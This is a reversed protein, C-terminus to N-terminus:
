LPGSSAISREEADLGFLRWSGPVGKLERSGRDITAFQSDQIARRVAASLLIEGPEAAAMVRAATHVEIGTLTEGRMEVEGLHLGTRLQIGLQASAQRIAVACSVGQTPRQFTAFFSDGATDVEQGSYNSLQQRVAARYRGLLVRWRVDGLAVIQETSGVIDTFLMTVLSRSPLFRDVVPRISRRIPVYLMGVVIGLFGALLVSPGGLWAQALQQVGLNAVGFIALVLLTAAGYLVTRNIITDIEYLRYRLVAFGIAVPVTAFAVIAPLIAGANASGPVLAEIVLAALISVAVLVLAGAVWRLQQREIGKAARARVVLSVVATVLLGLIVVFGPGPTLLPWIPFDPALALPNRVPVGSPYEPPNVNITPAFLSIVAVLVVAVLEIRAVVGWRGQPFRGSPFVFALLAYLPFLALASTSSVVAVTAVIPPPGVEFQQVTAEIPLVTLAHAWAMMLLIWGIPNRPRRIALVAGVGGYPIFWILGLISVAAVVVGAIVAAVVILRGVIGLSPQAESEDATAPLSTLAPVAGTPM